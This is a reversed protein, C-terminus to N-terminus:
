TEHARLHTYSVTQLKLPNRFGETKQYKEGKAGIIVGPLRDRYQEDCREAWLTAPEQVHGDTSVMFYKDATDPRATRTWGEVGPTDLRWVNNEDPAPIETAIVDTM